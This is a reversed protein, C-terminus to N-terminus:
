LNVKAVSMGHKHILLFEKSTELTDVFIFKSDTISLEKQMTHGVVQTYGAIGDEKLSKPRVWMPGQCIEDGHCEDKKGPTFRFINIDEYLFKNVDECFSTIQGNIKNNKCWTKTFGAHSFLYKEHEFCIKFLKEEIYKRFLSKYYSAYLTQYGSYKEEELLYHLDKTNIL